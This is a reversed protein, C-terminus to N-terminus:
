VSPPGAAGNKSPRWSECKFTGNRLADDQNGLPMLDLVALDGMDLRGKIAARKRCHKRASLRLEDFVLLSFRANRAERIWLSTRRAGQKQRSTM